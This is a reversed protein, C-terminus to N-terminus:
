IEVVSTSFRRFIAIQGESESRQRRKRYKKIKKLKKGLGESRLWKRVTESSVTISEKEALWESLHSFNFGRCKNQALQIVEKILVDPFSGSPRRGKNGHIVDNQGGRQVRKKIRKIQRCSLGLYKSAEMNTTRGELLGKVVGYRIGEKMTFIVERNM